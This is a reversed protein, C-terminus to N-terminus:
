SSIRSHHRCPHRREWSVFDIRRHAIDSMDERALTQRLPPQGALIVSLVLRSDMDFNTLLRLMALVDPRMDHSEDIILVTRLGDTTLSGLCSEQLRRVLTPYNGVPTLNLTIALERCWDRKSLDTVKLYRTKYRAEPLQSQLTRLIFTKGTGAPGILVASMRNEVVQRLRSIIEDQRDLRFGREIPIECTFPLTNLAFHSRLDNM